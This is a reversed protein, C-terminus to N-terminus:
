LGASGCVFSVIAAFSILILWFSVDRLIRVGNDQVLQVISFVFFVLILILLVM